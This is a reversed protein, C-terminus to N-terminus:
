YDKKWQLEVSGSGSDGDDATKFELNLNDRLEIQMEAQWPSLPDTSRQLEVYIRNTIYKGLSLAYEDGEDGAEQEVSLTDLRLLERTKAIPDLVARGSQLSRVVSVLRVAQLPSIDSLSKGFLLQALIEDQSASPDSTFSIDLDTATGSIEATIEGDSYEYIGEVLIAVENNEFRIEGDRLDFKKGFLDFSGRVITLEGSAQPKAATGRIDVQGRLQSNLGLGRVYSQQDLVIEVDLGIKAFLPPAREVQPSDIQVEVVQIEPISSGIWQEIQVALPRLTFRGTVEADQATGSLRADGSIAGRVGPSNLLHARNLSLTIDLSPQSDAPLFIAGSLNIRGGDGDTASGREIRWEEPSLHAYFNIDAINTHSPRHEYGANSLEVDGTLLPRQWSGAGDVSFSLLGRMRHVRPDIFEAIVSLDATGRGQLKFPLQQVSGQQNNELFLQTFLPAILLQIQSNIARSGGHQALLSANLEGNETQWDLIMSLPQVQLGGQGRGLAQGTARLEGQFEPQKPSGTISAYLSIDGSGTRGSSFSAALDSLDGQGRLELDLRDANLSGQVSLQNRGAWLVEVGDIVLSKDLYDVSGQLQWSELRYNGGAILNAKIQPNSLSGDVRGDLSLEGELTNPLSVGVLDLLLLPLNRAGIDIKLRDRRLELSGDAQLLAVGVRGLQKADEALTTLRSHNQLPESEGKDFGSYTLPSQPGRNGSATFQNGNGNTFLELRLDSVEILDLNGSAEGKLNFPYDQLQGDSKLNLEVQPNSWDGLLRLESAIGLTVNEVETIRLDDQLSIGKADLQLQLDVQKQEIDLQGTVDVNLKEGGLVMEDIGLTHLNGSIAATLESQLDHYATVASLSIKLNPNKWSGIAELRLQHLTGSLAPPIEVADAQPLSAVLRRIEEVGLEDLEGVLDVAQLNTDVTGVVRAEAGAFQLQLTQLDIVGAQTDVRGELQLPQKRYRSELQLQGTIDPQRLSGQVMLEASLWGSDLVDQWPRSLSLPIQNLNIEANVGDASISGALSSRREDVRLWIGKSNLHWPNIDVELSGTVSLNHESLPASLSDIDLLVRNGQRRLSLTGHADLAQQEPLHLQRSVFGQAAERATFEVVFRNGDREAGEVVLNFQSGKLERVNVQLHAGEDHWRYRASAQIAIPPVDLQSDVLQLRSIQIQSLRFAPVLLEWRTAPKEETTQEIKEGASEALAALFENLIDLNLLLDEAGLREIDIPDSSLTNLKIELMQAEALTNAKYDVRLRDFLWAGLKESRIGEAEINLGEVWQEALYFTGRTLGVRGPETGLFYIVSMLLFLCIGTVLSGRAGLSHWLGRLFMGVGRIFGLAFIGLWRM